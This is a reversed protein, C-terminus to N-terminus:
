PEDMGGLLTQAKEYDDPIGIDIFLGDVVTGAVGRALLRPMVARELSVSQAPEIEALIGRDALYVGANILGPGSRGDKELFAQVRGAPDLAVTGYRAADPVTKLAMAMIGGSQALAAELRGVEFEVFTDGNLVLFRPGLFPEALKIAGGTGLPEEERSYVIDCGLAAGRGFYAEIQGSQYGTALVFQGVGQRILREMLIHLFPRGRILAMSKPRDAVVSRLRTGLGGCLILAQM